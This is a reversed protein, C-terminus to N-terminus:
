YELTLFQQHRSDFVIKVEENEYAKVVAFAEVANGGAHFQANYSVQGLLHEASEKAKNLSYFDEDVEEVEGNPYTIEVKYYLM